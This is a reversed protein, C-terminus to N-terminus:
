TEEKFGIEIKGEGTMRIFDIVALSHSLDLEVVAETIEKLTPNKDFEVTSVRTDSIVTFM